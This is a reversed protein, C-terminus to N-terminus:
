ERDGSVGVNTLDGPSKLLSRFLISSKNESLFLQVSRSPQELDNNITCNMLWM